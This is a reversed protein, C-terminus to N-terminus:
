KEGPVAEAHYIKTTKKKQLLSKQHTLVYHHIVDLSESDIETFTTFCIEGTPNIRLITVTCVVDKYEGPLHLRVPHQEGEKFNHNEFAMGGASINVVKTSEDGFRVHVPESDWPAVRFTSRQCDDDNPFSFSVTSKDSKKWFL